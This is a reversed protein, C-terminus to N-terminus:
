LNEISTMFEATAIKLQDFSEKIKIKSTNSLPTKARRLILELRKAQEFVQTVFINSATGKLKHSATIALQFDSSNLGKKIDALNERCETIFQKLISLYLEESGSFFELAKQLNIGKIRELTQITTNKTPNVEKKLVSM